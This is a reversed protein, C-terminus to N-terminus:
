SGNRTGPSTGFGQVEIECGEKLLMIEVDIERDHISVKVILVLRLENAVIFSFEPIMQSEFTHGISSAMEEIGPSM